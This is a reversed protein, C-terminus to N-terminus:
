QCYSAQINDHYIHQGAKLLDDVGGKPVDVDLKTDPGNCIGSAVTGYFFLKGLVILAKSDVKELVALNKFASAGLASQGSMPMWSLMVVAVSLLLVALFSHSKLVQNQM